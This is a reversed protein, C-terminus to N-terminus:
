KAAPARGELAQMRTEMGVLRQNVYQNLRNITNLSEVQGQNLRRIQAELADIKRERAVLAFVLGIAAIALLATGLGMMWRRRPKSESM